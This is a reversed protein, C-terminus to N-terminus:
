KSWCFLKLQKYFQAETGQLTTSIIVSDAYIDKKPYTDLSCSGEIKCIKATCDLYYPIRDEIKVKINSPFGAVNMEVPLIGSDVGIIDARLTSNTQIERLIALEADYVKESIDEKAFYGKNLIILVVGAILLIAVFAEIIRIWGRKDGVKKNMRNVM